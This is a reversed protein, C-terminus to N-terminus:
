RWWSTQYSCSTACKKHQFMENLLSTGSSLMGRYQLVITNNRGRYQWWQQVQQLLTNQQLSM